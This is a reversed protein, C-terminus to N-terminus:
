SAILALLFIMGSLPAAINLALQQAQQAPVTLVVAWARGTVPQYYIFNRTGTRGIDDFFSAETPLQGSYSGMVQSALPHYLIVQNEDLLIGEGHLQAMSQLSEHM